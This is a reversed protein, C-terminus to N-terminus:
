DEFLQLAHALRQAPNRPMEHDLADIVALRRKLGEGNAMQIALGPRANLELIQPGHHADLVVDAGYYGLGTLEACRTALLLHEHWQPVILDDFAKGTDPHAEVPQNFQVARKTRGSHLHIGVGVAGQHLNAKGDSAATSLRMMAFIPYGRYVIVRVDPVGQYSFGDFADTFAICREVLAKDPVGGLSYLGSLINSCHKALDHRTVEAGSPKRLEGHEGRRPVVLIGRGAAGRSPKICFDPVDALLDYLQPVQHQYRVVTLLTPTAIAYKAALRKTEFKDDVRPYYARDNLPMIVAHNRHNMGVVNARNLRFPSVWRM